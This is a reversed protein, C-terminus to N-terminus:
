ELMAAKENLYAARTLPHPHIPDMQFVMLDELWAHKKCLDKLETPMKEMYGRYVQNILWTALARNEDANNSAERDARHEFFRCYACLGTVVVVSALFNQWSAHLMNQYWPEGNEMRYSWHLGAMVSGLVGIINITKGDNHNVHQCEHGIIAKALAIRESQAPM